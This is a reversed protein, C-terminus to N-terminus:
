SIFDLLSMNFMKSAVNLSMEYLVSYRALDIAVQTVDADYMRSIDDDTNIKMEDISERLNTLTQLRGGVIPFARVVKADVDKMEVTAGNLMAILQNEPINNKNLLLDRTGILISFMDYTGTMRIPEIGAQTIGSADIYLVEGTQSNIVPVNTESGDVDM